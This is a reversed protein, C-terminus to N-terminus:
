VGGSDDCMSVIGCVSEGQLLVTVGGDGAATGGAGVVLDDLVVASSGDGNIAELNGVEALEVAGATVALLAGLTVNDDLVDLRGAALEKDADVGVETVGGGDVAGGASGVDLLDALLKLADLGAALGLGDGSAGGGGALEGSESRALRESHRNDFLHAEPEHSTFTPSQFM